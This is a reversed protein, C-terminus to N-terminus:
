IKFSNNVVMYHMMICLIKICCQIVSHSKLHMAYIRLKIFINGLILITSVKYVKDSCTSEYDSMCIIYIASKMNNKM